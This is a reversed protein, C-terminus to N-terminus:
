CRSGTHCDPATVHTQNSTAPAQKASSDSGFGVTFALVVAAVILTALAAAV